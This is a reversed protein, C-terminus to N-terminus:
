KATVIGQISVHCSDKQQRGSEDPRASEEHVFIHQILTPIIGLEKKHAKKSRGDEDEKKEWFSNDFGVFRCDFGSQKKSQEHEKAKEKL